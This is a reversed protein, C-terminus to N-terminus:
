TGGLCAYFISRQCRCDMSRDCTHRRELTSQSTHEYWSKWGKMSVLMSISAVLAPCINLSFCLASGSPLVEYHQENAAATQVAIPLTKLEEVFAQVKRLQEAAGGEESQLMCVLYPPVM